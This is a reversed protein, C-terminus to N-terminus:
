CVNILVPHSQLWYDGSGFQEEIHPDLKHDHQLKELKRLLHNSKKAGEAPADGWGIHDWQGQTEQIYFYMPPKDNDGRRRPGHFM